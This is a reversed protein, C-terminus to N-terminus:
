ENPQNYFRLKKEFLVMRTESLEPTPAFIIVVTQEGEIKEIWQTHLVGNGGQVVFGKRESYQGVISKTDGIM